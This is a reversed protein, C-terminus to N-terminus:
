EWPLKKDCIIEDIEDKNCVTFTYKLGIKSSDCLFIKKKAQSLMIQRLSTESESADSIVGIESIAQSSFFMLDANIGKLFNEAASGVFINNEPVFRGGTCYVQIEPSINENFILQNNTIIKIRHFGNIYKIIRRVTSSGDMFITAGNFIYNAAKKALDEKISVNSSDRLNIPVVNNEYEASVVGGYIQKVYGKQELVKIDRRVSSESSWVIKSLEKITSVRNQKLYNLITEQREYIIM